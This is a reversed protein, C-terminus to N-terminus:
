SDKFYNPLQCTWFYVFHLGFVHGFCIYICNLYLYSFIHNCITQPPLRPNQVAICINSIYYNPCVLIFQRPFSVWSSALQVYFVYKSITFSHLFSDNGSHISCAPRYWESFRLYVSQLVLLALGCLVSDM